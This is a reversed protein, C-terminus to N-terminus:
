AAVAAKAEVPKHKKQEAAIRKELKEILEAQETHEATGEELVTLNERANYLETNLQAQTFHPHDASSFMRGCKCTVVEAVDADAIVAVQGATILNDGAFLKLVEGRPVQVFDDPNNAGKPDMTHETTVICLPM